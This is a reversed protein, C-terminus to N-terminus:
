RGNERALFKKLFTRRHVPLIGYREIAEMHAKTGYGKHSEFGYEPYMRGYLKLIDDRTEKAIISAAAISVSLADGKIIAQEEMDPLGLRVADILLLEPRLALHPRWVMATIRVAALIIEKVLVLFYVARKWLAAASRRRLRYGMVKATFATLAAAAVAGMVCSGVTIEGSLVIWLAWYFLPM